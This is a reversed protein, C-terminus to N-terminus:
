KRMTNPGPFPFTSNKRAKFCQNVRRFQISPQIQIVSKLIACHVANIYRQQPAKRYATPSRSINTSRLITVCKFFTNQIGNTNQANTRGRIVEWCSWMNACSLRVKQYVIGSFVTSKEVREISWMRGDNLGDVRLRDRMENQEWLKWNKRMWCFGLRVRLKLILIKEEHNIPRKIYVDALVFM